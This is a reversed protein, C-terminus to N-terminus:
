VHARGIQERTDRYFEPYDHLITSKIEELGAEELSVYGSVISRVKKGYQKAEDWERICSQNSFLKTSFEDIDKCTPFIGGMGVIAVKRFTMM